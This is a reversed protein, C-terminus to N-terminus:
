SVDGCYGNRESRSQDAAVVRVNCRQVEHGGVPLYEGNELVRLLKVQTEAALDGIEDLFLTGGDALAFLGKRDEIAGTFSGKLHGFLESELLNPTLAAANVRVLPGM